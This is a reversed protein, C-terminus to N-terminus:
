YLNFDRVFRKAARPNIINLLGALEFLLLEKEFPYYIGAMLANLAVLFKKYQTANGVYLPYYEDHYYSIIQGPNETIELKYDGIEGGNYAVYGLVSRILYSISEDKLEQKVQQLMSDDVFETRDKWLMVLVKNHLQKKRDRYERQKQQKLERKAEAEKRKIEGSYWEQFHEESWYRKSSHESVKLGLRKILHSRENAVVKRYEKKYLKTAVKPKNKIKEAQKKPVGVSLLKSITQKAQHKKRQRKNAM